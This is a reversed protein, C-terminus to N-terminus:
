RTSLATHTHTTCSMFGRPSAAWTLPNMWACLQNWSKVRIRISLYHTGRGPIRADFHASTRSPVRVKSAYGISQYTSRRNAYTRGIRSPTDMTQKESSWRAGPSGNVATMGSNAESWTM